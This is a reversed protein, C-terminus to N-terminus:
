EAQRFEFKGCHQQEIPYRFTWGRARWSRTLAAPRARVRSRARADGFHAWLGGAAGTMPVGRPDRPGARAFANLRRELAAVDDPDAGKQPGFIAPAREFPTQVDCIVTVAVSTAGADRLAALV